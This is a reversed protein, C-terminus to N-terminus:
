AASFNRARPSHRTVDLVKLLRRRVDTLREPDAEQWRVGCTRLAEVM